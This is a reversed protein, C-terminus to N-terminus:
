LQSSCTSLYIFYTLIPIAHASTSECQGLLQVVGEGLLKALLETNLRHATFKLPDHYLELHVYFLPPNKEMQGTM